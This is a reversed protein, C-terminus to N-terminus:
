HRLLSVYPIDLDMHKVAGVNIVGKEAYVKSVKGYATKVYVIFWTEQVNEVLNKNRFIYLNSCIDM